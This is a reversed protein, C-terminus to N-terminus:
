FDRPRYGLGGMVALHFPCPPLVIPRDDPVRLGARLAVWWVDQFAERIDPDIAALRLAPLLQALDEKAMLVQREEKKASQEEMPEHDRGGVNDRSASVGHSHILAYCRKHMQEPSVGSSATYRPELDNRAFIRQPGQHRVGM